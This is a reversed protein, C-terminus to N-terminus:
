SRSTIGASSTRTSGARCRCCTASPIAIRPAAASRRRSASACWSPTSPTAPSRRRGVTGLVEAHARGGGPALRLVSFDSTGGGFDGILVLEPAEIRLGYHHAAAVPELEFCWKTSARARSRRACGRSRSGSTPPARRRGRLAGAPRRRRAHRAAGAGGRRGARLEAVLARRSGRTRLDRRLDRHARLAREGPVVQDVARPTRRGGDRSLARDGRPRRARAAPPAHRSAGARRPMPGTTPTPSSTSSRASRRRADQAPGAPVFRPAARRPGRLARDVSHTTGFDLGVVRM